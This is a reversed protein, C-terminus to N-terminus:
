VRDHRRKELEKTIEGLKAETLIYKRTFFTVSLIIGIVPVVTMILRLGTLTGAAQITKDPDLKILDISVGAILGSIASALKVVFTQLSFTVSENRQGTKIEGYDVTDALFITTLVTALGFGFFIIVAAVCLLVLRISMAFTAFSLALMGAYGVMTISIAILLIKKCDWKKRFVPLTMMSIIQAGGGVTAFLGYLNYNRIDYKFFYTALNQTIYLSANFIIIAIVVIMAQDNTFLGKLMEGVSVSKKSESVREKVNLVCIITAVVFFVSVILAYIRYGARENGGGLAGVLVATLAAAIAAGVGACSRAIVSINERDKGSKSIAPIMSWYPIDMITYTMGWLIYAASIYIKTQTMNLTTPVAFMAYLVVANLLTGILLWPRFKGWRTHTKEVVIGMFPDNFADFIRAVMFLVGVFSGSIGLVTNFYILLFGSVVGYVWDKGVAGIGYSIKERKTLGM